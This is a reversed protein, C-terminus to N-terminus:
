DEEDLTTITAINGWNGLECCKMYLISAVLWFIPEESYDANYTLFKNGGISVTCKGTVVIFDIVAKRLFANFEAGETEINFKAIKGTTLNEVFVM